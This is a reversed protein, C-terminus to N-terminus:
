KVPVLQLKQMRTLVSYFAAALIIVIYISGFEPMGIGAVTIPSMCYLYVELILTDRQWHDFAVVTWTNPAGLPSGYVVFVNAEGVGAVAGGEHIQYEGGTPLDGPDCSVSAITTQSVKMPVSNVRVYDTAFQQASAYGVGFLAVPISLAILVIKLDNKV